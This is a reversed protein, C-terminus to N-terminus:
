VYELCTIILEFARRLNIYTLDQEQNTVCFVSIKFKNGLMGFIQLNYKDHDLFIDKNKTLM